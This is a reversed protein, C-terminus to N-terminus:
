DLLRVHAHRTKNAKFVSGPKAAEAQRDAEARAIGAVAGRKNNRGLRDERLDDFFARADEIKSSTKQETSM